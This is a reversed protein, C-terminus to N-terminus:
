CRASRASAPLFSNLLSRFGGPEDLPADTSLRAYVIRDVAEDGVTVGRMVGERHMGSRTALRQGTKDHPDVRTEVRSHQVLAAAVRRRVDEITHEHSRALRAIGEAVTTVDIPQSM